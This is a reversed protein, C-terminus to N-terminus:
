YVMAAETLVKNGKNQDMLLTSVILSITMNNNMNYTLTNKIKMNELTPESNRVKNFASLLATRMSKEVACSTKGFKEGVEKYLEMTSYDYPYKLFAITSAEIYYKFGDHKASFMLQFLIESIRTKIAEINYQPTQKMKRKCNLLCSYFKLDFHKWNDVIISDVQYFDVEKEGILIVNSCFNNYVINVMYDLDVKDMGFTDIVLIDAKNQSIFEFLDHYNGKIFSICFGLKDLYNKDINNILLSNGMSYVCTQFSIDM